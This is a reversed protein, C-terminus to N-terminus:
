DAPMFFERDGVMLRMFKQEYAASIQQETLMEERPGAVVRGGPLFIVAHTAFRAALNVDHLTLMVAKGTQRTRSVLHSMVQVQHRPDLHSVPEDLFMLPPDQALLSAIAVRQREGGSLTLVDRSALELADVAELAQLAVRRDSAGEWRWRPIHPHRGIVVAELATASFADHVTQPLFGRERALDEPHWASVDQGKFAVTGGSQKALGALSMMLTTKGCGNPGLVCWLEGGRVNLDLRKVLVRSGIRLELRHADLIGAPQSEYTM